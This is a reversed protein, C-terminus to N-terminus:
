YYMFLYKDYTKTAFERSLQLNFVAERRILIKFKAIRLEIRSIAWAVSIFPQSRNNNNMEM